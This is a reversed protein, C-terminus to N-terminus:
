EEVIEWMEPTWSEWGTGYMGALKSSNAKKLDAWM